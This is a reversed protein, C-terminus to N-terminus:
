DDNAHTVETNEDNVRACTFIHVHLRRYRAKQAMVKEYWVNKLM